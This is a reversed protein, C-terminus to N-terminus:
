RDENMFWLENASFSMNLKFFKESLGNVTIDGRQGIQLALDIRSSGSRIPLGLGLSLGYENVLQGNALFNLQGYFMGARYNMRDTYSALRRRSPTREIGAGLRFNNAMNNVALGNFKYGSKWNIYDVDAGILWREWPVYSFGVTSNLPFTITQYKDIKKEASLSIQQTYMTMVSPFKIQAGVSLRPTLLLFASVGVSPAKGYFQYQNEVVIDRYAPDNYDIKTNDNIKGLNYYLYLGISLNQNVALAGILQVESLTGKVKITQTAPAGIGLGQIIFGQNNFSKPLIGFGFAAVKPILPIAMFGGFFNGDVSSIQNYASETKLGQYAFNLAFTTRPLYTWLAYNMQNLNISDIVAMSFGGRGLAATSYPYHHEGISNMGLAFVSSEAQGIAPLTLLLYFFIKINKKMM